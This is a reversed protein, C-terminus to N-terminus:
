KDKKHNTRIHLKHVIQGLNGALSSYQEQLTTGADKEKREQETNLGNGDTESGQTRCM